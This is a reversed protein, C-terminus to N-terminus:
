APKLGVKLGPPWGIEFPGAVVLYLWAM